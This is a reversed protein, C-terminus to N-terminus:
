ELLAGLEEIARATDGFWVAEWGAARAAICNFELDDVLICRDAGVGARCAALDYMERQPKRTGVEHSLVVDDFFEDPPVMVRWHPEFAPPMNSLMGVFHGDRRLGRVYEVLVDNPPRDAFWKAGFDSLDVHVGFRDEIVAEVRRSWEEPSLLPTDLPEMVDATGCSQAVEWMGTGFMDLTVGVRECFHSLTSGAPPTLVGGLGGM